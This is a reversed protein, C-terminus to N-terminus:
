DPIEYSDAHPRNKSITKTSCSKLDKACDQEGIRSGHIRHPGIGFKERCEDCTVVGWLEHEPAYKATQGLKVAVSCLPGIRKGCWFAVM